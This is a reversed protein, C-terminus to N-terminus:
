KIGMAKAAKMVGSTSCVNGPQQNTLTCIAATQYNASSVIAQTIPSTANDLAGAIADRRRERWHRLTTARAQSSSSTPSRSSHFQGPKTSSTFGKIYKTMDYKSIEAEETPTPTQLKM